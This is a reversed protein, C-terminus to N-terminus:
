HEPRQLPLVMPPATQTSDPGRQTGKKVYDREVFTARGGSPIVWESAEVSTCYGHTLAELGERDRPFYYVYLKDLNNVGPYFEASGVLQSGEVNLVGARYKINNVRLSVYTANGTATGQTGAVAYVTNDFHVPRFQYTGDQSVALCDMGNDDCLPGVM